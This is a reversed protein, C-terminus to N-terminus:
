NNNQQSNPHKQRNVARREAVTAIVQILHLQVEIISKVLVHGLHPRGM